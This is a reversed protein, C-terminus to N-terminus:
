KMRGDDDDDDDYGDDGGEDKSLRDERPAVHLIIYFLPGRHLAYV